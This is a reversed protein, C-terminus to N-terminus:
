VCRRANPFNKFLEGIKVKQSCIFSESFLQKEKVFNIGFWWFSNMQGVIGINTM